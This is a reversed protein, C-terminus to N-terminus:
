VPVGQWVLSAPASLYVQLFSCSSTCEACSTASNMVLHQAIYLSQSLACRHKAALSIRLHKLLAIILLIIQFMTTALGDIESPLRLQNAEQIVSPSM